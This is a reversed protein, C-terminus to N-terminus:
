PGGASGAFCQVRLRPTTSGLPGLPPSCAKIGGITAIDDLLIGIDLTELRKGRKM